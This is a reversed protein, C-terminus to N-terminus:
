DISGKQKSSQKFILGACLATIPIAVVLGISGVLARVVETAILDLNLIKSVPTDYSMFLLLLPISSGTYALILTNSMTGMIDKGINLGSKVLSRYDIDTSLLRLEYMSSSISMAVDMVAGLTGIIIGSFLLSRFDFVIGQPIFMLMSAEESSLGTLKVMSGVMYALFGAFLVGGATGVLAAVTKANIGGIILFTMFAIFIASLSTVILPNFGKLILPLMIYMIVYGTIFLTVVSKLGKIGGILILFAIFLLVLMLLYKDRVFDTVYIKPVKEGDEEISLVVENGEELIIDYAFNGSISHEIIFEENKFKGDLMKIKATQLRFSLDTSYIDDDKGTDSLIELIKGKATIFDIHEEPGIALEESSLQESFGISCFTLLILTFLVYFRKMNM